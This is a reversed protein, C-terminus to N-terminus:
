LHAFVIMLFDIILVVFATILCLNYLLMMGFFCEVSIIFRNNRAHLAYPSSVEPIQSASSDLLHLPADANKYKDCTYCMQGM